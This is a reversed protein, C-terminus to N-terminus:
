GAKVTQGKKVTVSGKAMHMYRTKFGNGHDIIVYNGMDGTGGV